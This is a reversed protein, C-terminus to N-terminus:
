DSLLPWRGDLRPAVGAVDTSLIRRLIRSTRQSIPSKDPRVVKTRTCVIDCGAPSKGGLGRIM